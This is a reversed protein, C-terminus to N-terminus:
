REIKRQGRLKLYLLSAVMGFVLHTVISIWSRAGKFWPFLGTFMYFNVLYLLIGLLAGMIAAPIPKPRAVAAGISTYLISLGYHLLLAAIIIGIEFTAPPPLAESGLIIAAIKRLTFWPSAGNIVANLSLHVILFATGAVGGAAAASRIAKLATSPEKNNDTM